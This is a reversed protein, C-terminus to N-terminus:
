DHCGPQEADIVLYAGFERYRKVRDILTPDVRRSKLYAVVDELSDGKGSCNISKFMKPTGRDLFLITSESYAMLIPAVHYVHGDIFDVCKSLHGLDRGIDSVLFAHPTGQAVHFPAFTRGYSPISKNLFEAMQNLIAIRDYKPDPNEGCKNVGQAWSLAVFIPIALVAFFVRIKIDSM